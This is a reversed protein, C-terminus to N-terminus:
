RNVASVFEEFADHSHGVADVLGLALAESGDYIQAETQMAAAASFRSGRHRGVAEAFQTRAADVRTQIRARAKDGLPETPTGDAKHEGATILTIKIGEGALQESMDAHMAIVGISGAAGGDPVVIQRAASALLYGASLAFDTLIAMTPKQASLRHIMEATEFAGATEGGFSDVEFAVAKVEPAAGARRIQTQLGEYSTEGSSMGVFSGKHILTGEVGIIAVGGVMDFPERGVRQYARGLRDGIPGMSHRVGAVHASPEVDGFDLAISFRGKTAYGKMFAAAKSPDVMLPANFLRSTIEPTMM